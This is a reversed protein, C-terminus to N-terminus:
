LSTLGVKSCHRVIKCNVKTEIMLLRTGMAVVGIETLVMLRLEERASLKSEREAVFLLSSSSLEGVSHENGEDSLTLGAHQVDGAREILGRLFLQLIL